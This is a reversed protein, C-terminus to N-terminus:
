REGGALAVQEGAQLGTRVVVRDGHADGLRVWRLEARGNKVVRVGTLDGERVVASQPVLLAREAAGAPVALTAAGGAPYEGKANNVMANITYMTAASPVVGEVTAQVAKGEITAAIKQGAKVRQAMAAPVAAAIRLRSADQVTVLPAGPAAFDGVDVFRHTVVGAFPARMVGYARVANLEGAGAKAADLGATARALGAEVADLQAKPAASDAYLARIRKAMALAERQAAEAAEVGAKAQAAKADLDAADLKVLPAGSSVHAGEAVMVATVSGMLKTSLTAEAVPLAPGSAQFVAPITTDVVATTPGVASQAPLPAAKERGGCAAAAMLVAPVLGARIFTTNPM